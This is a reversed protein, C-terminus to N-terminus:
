IRAGSRRGFEAERLTGLQGAHSGISSTSHSRRTMAAVMSALRHAEARPTHRHAPHDIQHTGATM